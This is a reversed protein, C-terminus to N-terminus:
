PLLDRIARAPRPCLREVEALLKDPTVPKALYGETGSRRALAAADAATVIVIPIAATEPDSRLTEMVQWGDLGPMRIDLLILAPHLEYVLRLGDNASCTGWMRYGSDALYDQFLEIAECDDDIALILTGGNPAPPRFIPQPTPVRAAVPLAVHFTSGKGPQSRFWLRGGHLDALRQAIALGLGTGEFARTLSGDGQQFAEFIRDQVEPEIGIGTDTVSIIVRQDDADYHARVIVAGTHTFKIANSLLNALIQRARNEDVHLSPLSGYGRVLRLGKSLAQVQFTHLLGNLLEATPVETRNLIMHGAEIKSLDLVDNILNLLVRGNRTVKDLRNSQLETLSGYTGNLILETYGIISNLPTRLEHSMNALFQSKMRTAEELETNKQALQRNLAQLPEFVQHILVLRGILIASVAMALANASYHRVAPLASFLLIGGVLILIPPALERARTSSRNYLLAISVVLYLVVVLVGLLGVDTLHYSYGGDPQPIFENYIHGTWLLFGFLAGAPVSILHELYRINAPLGAFSVAFNFLLIVSLIYFTSVLNLMPAPQLYFFQAVQWLANTTGYISFAAMSLGFYRNSSRHLDQWIVLLVLAGAVIGLVANAAISFLTDPGVSM